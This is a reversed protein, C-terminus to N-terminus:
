MWNEIEPTKEEWNLTKAINMRKVAELDKNKMIANSLIENAKALEEPSCNSLKENTSKFEENTILKSDKLTNLKTIAQNLLEAQSPANSASELWKAEGIKDAM